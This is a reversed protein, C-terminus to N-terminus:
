IYKWKFGGASKRNNKHNCVDNINSSTIGSAKAAESLSPYTNLERGHMDMQMIKKCVKQGKNPIEIHKIFNVIEMSKAGFYMNYASNEYHTYCIKNITVKGVICERNGKIFVDGRRLNKARVLMVSVKIKEAMRIRPM